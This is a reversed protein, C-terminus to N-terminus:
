FRVPAVVITATGVVNETNAAIVVAGNTHATVQGSNSVSAIADNSSSWTFTKNPIIGGSSSYATAGLQVREGIALTDAAPSVVVTQVVVGAGRLDSLERQLQAQREVLQQRADRCERTKKFGTAGSAIWVVGLGISTYGASQPAVLPDDTALIGIGYLLYLGASVVDLIPGTNSETCTFGEMREHGIPPGHTLVFGCAGTAIPLLVLLAPTALRSALHKRNM